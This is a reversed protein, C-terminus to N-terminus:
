PRANGAGAHASQAADAADATHHARRRASPTHRAPRAHGAAAGVEEFSKPADVLSGLLLHTGRSVRTVPTSAGGEANWLGYAKWLGDANWLGEANWLGTAQWLRHAHRPERTAPAALWVPRRPTPARPAARQGRSAVPRAPWSPRASRSPAPSCLVGRARDELEAHSPALQRPACTADAVLERWAAGQSRAREM